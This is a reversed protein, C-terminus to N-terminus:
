ALYRLTIRVSGGFRRIDSADDYMLLTPRRVEVVRSVWMAKDPSMHGAADLLRARISAAVAKSQARDWGYADYDVVCADMAPLQRSGGPVETIQVIPLQDGIEAPLETVYRVVRLRGEAAGYLTPADPDPEADPDPPVAVTLGCSRLMRVVLLEVDSPDDDLGPPPGPTGARADLAALADLAGGGDYTEPPAGSGGVVAAVGDLRGQGTFQEGDAPDVVSAGDVAAVGELVGQGFVDSV